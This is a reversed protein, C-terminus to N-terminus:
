RYFMQRAHVLSQPEAMRVACYVFAFSEEELTERFIRCKGWATHTRNGSMGSGAREKTKKHKM